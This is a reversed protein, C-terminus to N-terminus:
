APHQAKEVGHLNVGIVGDRLGPLPDGEAAGPTGTTCRRDYYASMSLDYEPDNPQSDFTIDVVEVDGDVTDAGVRCPRCTARGPGTPNSQSFHFVTWRDRPDPM